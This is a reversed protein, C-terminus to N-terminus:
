VVDGVKKLFLVYENELDSTLKEINRYFSIKDPKPSSGHNEKGAFYDLAGVFFDFSTKQIEASLADLSQSFRIVDASSIGMEILESLMILKNFEVFRSINDLRIISSHGNIDLFDAMDSIGPDKFRYHFLGDFHSTNIILNDKELIGVFANGGYVDLKVTLNWISAHGISKLFLANHRLSKFSSYPHFMIFGSAPTAIHNEKLRELAKKVTATDTGKRFKKLEGDDGSEIGMFVRVLGAKRLIKILDPENAISDARLFAEFQIKLDRNLIEQAIRRAHLKGAMGPGIFSDDYFLIVPDTAGVYTAVLQEIEDVVREASRGKWSKGGGLKWFKAANCFLCNGYCGRSTLIPIAPRMDKKVAAKLVSRDPSPLLDLDHTPSKCPNSVINGNLRYSLSGVNDLNLNANTLESYLKFLAAEGEGRIVFDIEPVTKLVSEACYTFHQGGLVLYIGKNQARIKKAIEVATLSSRSLATIGVIVPHYACAKNAADANNLHELDCDIIKVKIAHKKLFSALYGLAINESFSTNAGSAMPNPPNILVVQYKRNETMKLFVNHEINM